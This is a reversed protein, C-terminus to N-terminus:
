KAATMEGLVEMAQAMGARDPHVYTRMTFAPDSHGLLRALDSIAIQKSQVANTAFTHRLSHIGREPIGAKKLTTHYLRNLNNRDAHNGKKTAFVFTDGQCAEGGKWTEGAKLREKRQARRQEDLLVRMAHNYPVIRKGSLTKPEDEIDIYGDDKWDRITLANREIHIGDAQIDKWKLGVLESVRLGTGHLFRLARGGTTAPVVRLWETQEDMTLPHIEVREKKPKILGIFPDRNIKKLVIAQQTAKHLIALMRHVTAPKLGGAIAKHAFQQIHECALKQLPIDGLAPKIHMRINSETTAATSRKVEPVYFNAFWLDLWSSVTERSPPVYTGKRVAELASDLKEKCAGYTKGYVQRQKHTIPDTYIGRYGSWPHAGGRSFRSISGEGNFRRKASM